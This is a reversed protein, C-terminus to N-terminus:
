GGPPMAYGGWAKLVSPEGWLCVEACVPQRRRVLERVPERQEHWNFNGDVIAGHGATLVAEIAINVIRDTAM